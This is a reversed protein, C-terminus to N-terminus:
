KKTNHKQTQTLFLNREVSIIKKVHELIGFGFDFEFIVEDLHVTISHVFKQVLTRFRVDKQDSNEFNDILEFYNEYTVHPLAKHFKTNYKDIKKNLKNIKSQLAKESFVERKLLKLLFSDLKDRDIEKINSCDIKKCNCRYIHFSKKGYRQKGSMNHGCCGCKLIGSCLYFSKCNFQGSHNKNQKRREQVKLFIDKSIIASCGNEVRIIEENSKYRHSNRKHNYGKAATQNFVYTGMYKENHLITYFSSKVFPRGAKTKYGEANLIDAIQDYRYGNLYMDYIKRVAEAEHENIVLHKGIDLDYGLPPSGGTHKCQLANESMGKMVERGLNSSYYEAMGELMSEMIISEPTDDLRELVSCIKVNNRRLKSKYVASDYRNRSFRDLKHVLVIDFLNKSSDTILQQFNPRRDTTASRAEDVYTAVVQWNQQECYKKMARVQADISETRQNDSSFRAYLAARKIDSM